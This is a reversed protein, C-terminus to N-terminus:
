ARLLVPYTAAWAADDFGTVFDEIGHRGAWQGSFISARSAACIPTTVFAHEFRVGDAALRDLAPTQIVPNGAAGLADARLDDAIVVLFSPRDPVPEARCAAALLLVVLGTWEPVSRAGRVGPGRRGSTM